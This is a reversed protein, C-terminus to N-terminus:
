LTTCPSWFRSSWWRLCAPTAYGVLDLLAHTYPMTCHTQLPTSSQGRGRHTHRVEELMIQLVIHPAKDSPPPSLALLVRSAATCARETALHFLGLTAVYLADDADIYMQILESILYEQRTNVAPVVGPTNTYNLEAQWGLM